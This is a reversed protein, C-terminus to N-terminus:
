KPNGCGHQATWTISQTSEELFVPESQKKGANQDNAWEKADYNFVIRDTAFAGNNNAFGNTSGFEGVNYGGRNNNQSDFMRNGNQRNASKENLRNNSGRPYHMYTDGMCLAIFLIVAMM